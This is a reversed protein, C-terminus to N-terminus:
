EAEPLSLTPQAQLQLQPLVQVDVIKMGFAQSWFGEVREDLAKGEALASTILKKALAEKGQGYQAISMASATSQAEEDTMRRADLDSQKKLAAVKLVNELEINELEVPDVFQIAALGAKLEANRIQAATPEAAPQAAPEATIAGALEGRQDAAALGGSKGNSNKGDNTIKMFVEKVQNIREKM